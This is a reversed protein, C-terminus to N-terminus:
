GNLLKKSCEFVLNSIVSCSSIETDQKSEKTLRVQVLQRGRQECAINQPSDAHTM